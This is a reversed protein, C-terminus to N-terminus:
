KTLRNLFVLYQHNLIRLVFVRANQYPINLRKVNGIYAGLGNEATANLLTNQVNLADVNTMKLANANALSAGVASLSYVSNFRVPM